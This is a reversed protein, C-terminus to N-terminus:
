GVWWVRGDGGGGRVVVVCVCVGRVCLRPVALLTLTVQESPVRLALRCRSLTLVCWYDDCLVVRCDLPLLM